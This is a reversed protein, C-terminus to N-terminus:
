CVASLCKRQGPGLAPAGCGPHLASHPLPWPQGLSSHSEWSQPLAWTESPGPSEFWMSLSFEALMFLSSMEPDESHPYYSFCFLM